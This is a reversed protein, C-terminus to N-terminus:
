GEQQAAGAVSDAGSGTNSSSSCRPERAPQEDDVDVVHCRVGAVHYHVPAISCHVAQPTNHRDQEGQSKGPRSNDSPLCCEAGTSAASFRTLTPLPYHPLNMCAYRLAMVSRYLRLNVGLRNCCGTVHVQM